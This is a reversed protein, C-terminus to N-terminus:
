LILVRGMKLQVLGGQLFFRAAWLGRTEEFIVLRFKDGTTLQM